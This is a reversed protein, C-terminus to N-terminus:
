VNATSLTRLTKESVTYEATCNKSMYHQLNKGNEQVITCYFIEIPFLLGNQPTSYPRSPLM